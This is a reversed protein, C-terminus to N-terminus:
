MELNLVCNCYTMWQDLHLSGYEKHLVSCYHLSPAGIITGFVNNVFLKRTTVFRRTRGCTVQQPFHSLPTHSSVQSQLLGVVVVSRQSVLEQGRDVLSDMADSDGDAFITTKKKVFGCCCVCFAV